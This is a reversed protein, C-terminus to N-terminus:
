ELDKASIPGLVSQVRPVDSYYQHEIIRSLQGQVRDFLFLDSQCNLDDPALNYAASDFVLLAGDPSMALHDSHGNADHGGEAVSVKTFEQRDRDYIFINFIDGSDPERSQFAIYRGDASMSTEGSIEALPITRGLERDYLVAVGLFVAIAVWRGDTSISAQVAPPFAFFGNSAFGWEFPLPETQGTARDHLVLHQIGQAAGTALNPAETLFVVYRGDPSIDASFSPGDAEEGTSTVSIRTTESKKLDHIFVDAVGNTDDPVLNSAVSGFAVYRGDRSIIPSGFDITWDGSPGNGESGDSAISVRITEYTSFNYVFVDELENTDEPIIPPLGRLIDFTYTFVRLDGDASSHRYWPFLPKDTPPRPTPTPNPTFTPQPTAEPTPNTVTDGTCAACFLVVAISVCALSGMAKLRLKLREREKLRRLAQLIVQGM